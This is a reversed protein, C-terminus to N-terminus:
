KIIKVYYINKAPTIENSQFRQVFTRNWESSEQTKGNTLLHFSVAHM